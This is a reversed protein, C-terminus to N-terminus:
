RLSTKGGGWGRGSGRERKFNMAEQQEGSKLIRKMKTKHNKHTKHPDKHSKHPKTRALFSFFL